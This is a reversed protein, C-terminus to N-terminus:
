TCLIKLEGKILAPTIGTLYGSMLLFSKIFALYSANQKSPRQFLALYQLIFNHVDLDMFM